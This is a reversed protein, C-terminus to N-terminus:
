RAAFFVPDLGLYSNPASSYDNKYHKAPTLFTTWEKIGDYGTHHRERPRFFLGDLSKKARCLEFILSSAFIISQTFYESAAM